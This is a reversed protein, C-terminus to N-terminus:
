NEAFIAKEDEEGFFPCGAEVGLFDIAFFFVELPEDDDVDGSGNRLSVVCINERFGKSQSSDMLNIISNM